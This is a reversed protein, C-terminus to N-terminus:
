CRAWCLCAARAAAARERPCSPRRRRARRLPRRPRRPRRPAAALTASAAWTPPTSKSAPTRLHRRSARIPASRALSSARPPPPRPSTRPTPWRHESPLPPSIRHSATLHPSTDELHSHSPPHTCSLPPPYMLPLPRSHSPSADTVQQKMLSSAGNRFSALRLVQAPGFGPASASAGGTGTGASGASSNQRSIPPPAVAASGGASTGASTGASGGGSTLTSGFSFKSRMASGIRSLPPPPAAGAGASSNQRKPAPAGGLSTEHLIELSSLSQENGFLNLGLGSNADGLGSGGGRVAEAQAAREAEEFDRQRKNKMRLELRLRKAKETDDADKTPSGELLPVSRDAVIWAAGLRQRIVRDVASEEEEAALEEAHARQAALVREEAAAVEADAEADSAIFDDIDSDLGDSGSGDEGEELAAKKAAKREARRAQRKAEKRERRQRKREAKEDVPEESGDAEDATRKGRQALHELHAGVEADDEAAQLAAAHRRHSHEDASEEVEADDDILDGVASDEGDAEEEDEEDAGEAKGDEGSEEAEGEVMSSSAAKPKAPAAEAAATEDQRRAAEADQASAAAAVQAEHEELAEEVSLPIPAAAEADAPSGGAVAAKPASAFGLTAQQPKRKGFTGLGRTGAPKNIQSSPAAGLPAPAAEESASAMMAAQLLTPEAAAEEEEEDRRSELKDGEQTEPLAAQAAAAQAAAAQAAAAEASGPLAVGFAKALAPNVRIGVDMAQQMESLVREEMSADEAAKTARARKTTAMMRAIDDTPNAAAAAEAAEAAAAAEDAAVLAASRLQLRSGETDREAGDPLAITYYPTPDDVGGPHVAVVRAPQAEGSSSSTYTVVADVAFADPAAAPAPADSAMVPAAPADPAAEAEGEAEEEAEGEAEEEAEEGGEEDDAEDGAEDDAGAEAEEEDEAMAALGLQSPEEAEVYRGTAIASEKKLYSADRKLERKFRGWRSVSAGGATGASMLKDLQTKHEAEQARLASPLVLLGEADDDADADAAAEEVREAASLSRYSPAEEAELAAAEAPKRGAGSAVCLMARHVSLCLASCFIRGADDSGRPALTDRLPADDADLVKSCSTCALSDITAEEEEAAAAAEEEASPMREVPMQRQEIKVLLRNLSVAKEKLCPLNSAAKRLLRQSESHMADFVADAGLRDIFVPMELGRKNGELAEDDAGEEGEAGEEDSDDDNIFNDRRLGLRRQDKAKEKAM